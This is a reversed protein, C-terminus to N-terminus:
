RGEDVSSDDDRPNCIYQDKYVHSLDTTKGPVGNEEVLFVSRWSIAPINNFVMARVM